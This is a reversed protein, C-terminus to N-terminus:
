RGRRARPRAKKRAILLVSHSRRAHQQRSPERGSGECEDCEFGGLRMRGTGKCASCKRTRGKPQPGPHGHLIFEDELQFGLTNLLPYAMKTFWHIKGGTVYDMCKWWLLGGPALLDYAHMVGPVIQLQWQAPPNREVHLMGYRANMDHTTSTAHGGKTVYPPDFVVHRWEGRRAPAGAARSGNLRVLADPATADRFDGHVLAYLEAPVIRTWFGMEDGPTLDLVPGDLPYLQAATAILEANNGRQISEIAKM